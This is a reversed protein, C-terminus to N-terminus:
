IRKYVKLVNHCNPCSHEIDKCSEVCFPILCFPWICFFLLTGFVAWTLLGSVAKTSTVIKQKCYGCTMSVPLSKMPAHMVVATPGQVVVPPPAQEIVVQPPAAQFVVPPPAQEIIVPPPPAQFVVPPPAQEIIVPQAPVDIVFAM